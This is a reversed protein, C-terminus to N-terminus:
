RSADVGSLVERFPPGSPGAHRPLVALSEYM